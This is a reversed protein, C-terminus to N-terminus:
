RPTSSPSPRRPALTTSWRSAKTSSPPSPTRATSTRGGVRRAAAAGPAARRCLCTCSSPQTPLYLCGRHANTSPARPARPVIEALDKKLDVLTYQQLIVVKLGTYAGNVGLDFDAGEANGHTDRKAGSITNLGAHKSFAQSSPKAKRARNSKGQGHDLRMLPHLMRDLTNALKTYRVGAATEMLRASAEVYQRAHEARSPSPSPPPPSGTRPGPGSTSAAATAATADYRAVLDLLLPDHKAPHLASKVRNLAGLFAKRKNVVGHTQTEFRAIVAQLGDKSDDVLFRELDDLSTITQGLHGMTTATRSTQQAPRPHRTDQTDQHPTVPHHTPCHTSSCTPHLNYSLQALWMRVLVGAGQLQM